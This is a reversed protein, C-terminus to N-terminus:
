NLFMMKWVNIGNLILMQWIEVLLLYNMVGVKSVHVRLRPLEHVCKPVSVHVQVVSVGQLFLQLPRGPGEGGQCQVRGNGAYFVEDHGVNSYLSVIRVWLYLHIHGDLILRMNNGTRTDLICHNSDIINVSLVNINTIYKTHDRLIAIRKNLNKLINHFVVYIYPLGAERLSNLSYFYLLHTQIHYLHSLKMYYSM